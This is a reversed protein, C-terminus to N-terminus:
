EAFREFGAGWGERRIKDSLEYAQVREGTVGDGRQLALFIFAETLLMADAYQAREAESLAEYEAQTLSTPKIHAGNPLTGPTITNVAINYPQLEMALSRSFGELGFKSTCYPVERTFGKIGARSSVNIISGGGQKKMTELFLKCTLVPGRLNVAITRDWEELSLEAFPKLILLAANNVLIDLRGFRRLVEAAMGRV